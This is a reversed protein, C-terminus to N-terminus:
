LKWRLKGNRAVKWRKRDSGVAEKGEGCSGIGGWRKRDSGVAEKGEGGSGIVGCRKRDSGM